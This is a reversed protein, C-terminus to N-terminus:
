YISSNDSFPLRVMYIGSPKRTYTKKFHEECELEESSLFSKQSGEEIEWFNRLDFLLNQHDTVVSSVSCSPRFNSQNKISTPGMLIYGFPMEHASPTGLPGSITKGSFFLGCVDAGLILDFASTKFFEPDDLELNEIHPWSNCSM